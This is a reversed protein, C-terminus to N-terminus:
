FQECFIGCAYCKQVYKAGFLCGVSCLCHSVWLMSFGLRQVEWIQMSSVRAFRDFNKIAAIHKLKFFSVLPPPYFIIIGVYLLAHSVPLKTSISHSQALFLGLFSSCLRWLLFSLGHPPYFNKGIDLASGQNWVMLPYLWEDRVISFCNSLLPLPKCCTLSRWSPRQHSANSSPALDGPGHSLCQNPVVVHFDFSVM